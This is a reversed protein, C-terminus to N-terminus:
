LGTRRCECDAKSPFRRARGPRPWRLVSRSRMGKAQRTNRLRKNWPSACPLPRVVGGDHQSNQDNRWSRAERKESAKERWVKLSHCRLMRAWEIYSFDRIALQRRNKVIVSQEPESKASGRTKFYDRDAIRRMGRLLFDATPQRGGCHAGSWGPGNEVGARRESGATGTIGSQPTWLSQRGGRFSPSQRYLQMWFNRRRHIRAAMIALRCCMQTSTRPIREASRAAGM